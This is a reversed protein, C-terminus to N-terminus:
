FQRRSLYSRAALAHADFGEPLHYGVKSLTHSCALLAAPLTACLLTAASASIAACSCHLSRLLPVLIYRATAAWTSKHKTHSATWAITHTQPHPHEDVAKITSLREEEMSHAQLGHVSVARYQGILMSDRHHHHVELNSDVTVMSFDHVAECASSTSGQPTKYQKCSSNLLTNYQGFMGNIYQRLIINCQKRTAVMTMVICM